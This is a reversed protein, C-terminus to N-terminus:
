PSSFRGLFLISQTRNHRIFFLFPHDARCIIIDPVSKTGTKGRAGAAAETGEENVEIYSRHVVRSLSLNQAYGESIGSLDSKGPIFVDTIGTAELVPQLAYREELTFKPLSVEVYCPKMNASNTWEHLKEWTLGRGLEEPYEKNNPLLIFMSMENNDYPLEAVTMSPNRIEALKYIGRRVMMPVQKVDHKLTWFPAEHTRKPDFQLQWRGKFYIISMLILAATPDINEIFIKIKGNTQSEAWSNIKMRTEETTYRFDVAELGAHYLETICDLYDQCFRFTDSGYLKNVINLAYNKTHTNIASLLAQFQEHPGGPQDCCAGAVPIDASKHPPWGTIENFHLAREMQKATEGRAGLSVMSLAASITLPSFSINGDSSEKLLNKFIDVGFKDIAQVLTSMTYTVIGTVFAVCYM